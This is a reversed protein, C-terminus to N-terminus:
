GCQDVSQARFVCGALLCDGYHWVDGSGAREKLFTVAAIIDEIAQDVNGDVTAGLTEADAITKAVKGHYLDAAFAVFGADALRNCFAKITDNLGWWAHLVLVPSGNGASSKGAAPMALYGDPQPNSM